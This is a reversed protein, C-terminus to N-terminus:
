KVIIQEPELYTKINTINSIKWLSEGVKMLTAIKKVEVEAEGARSKIITYNISYTIYCKNKNCRKFHIKFKRKKYKTDIYIKRFTDDSIENYEKYLDGMTKKLLYNKSINGSFQQGIFNRLVDEPKEKRVFCSSLSFSIYIFFVFRSIM